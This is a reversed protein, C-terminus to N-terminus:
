FRWPQWGQHAPSYPKRPEHEAKQAEIAKVQAWYIKSQLDLDQKKPLIKKIPITAPAPLMRVIYLLADVTDHRITRDMEDKVQENEGKKWRQLPIEKILVPCTPAVFLLPAGPQGAKPHFDPYPRLPNPHLYQSLRQVSLNKDHKIANTFKIGHRGMDDLAVRNEYDGCKFAFEYEQDTEADKLKPKALEALARIDTTVKTIEDYM